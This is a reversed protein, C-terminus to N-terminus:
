PASVLAPTNMKDWNKPKVLEVKIKNSEAIQTSQMVNISQKDTGTLWRAMNLDLEGASRFKKQKMLEEICKNVRSYTDFEIEKRIKPPFNHAIAKLDYHIQADSVHFKKAYYRNRIRHKGGANLVADLLIARREKAPLKLPHRSKKKQPPKKLKKMKDPIEPRNAQLPNAQTQPRLRPLDM